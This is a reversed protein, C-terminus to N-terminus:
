SESSNWPIWIGLVEGGDITLAKEVNPSYVTRTYYVTRKHRREEVPLYFTEEEPEEKGRSRKRKAHVARSYDPSVWARETYM